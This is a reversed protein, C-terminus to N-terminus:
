RVSDHFNLHSPCPPLHPPSGRTVSDEASVCARQLLSCIILFDQHNSTFCPSARDFLRNYAHMFGQDYDHVESVCQWRRMDLILRM